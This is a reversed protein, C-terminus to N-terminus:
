NQFIQSLHGDSGHDTEIALRNAFLGNSTKFIFALVRFMKPAARKAAAAKISTM